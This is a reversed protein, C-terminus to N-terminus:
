AKGPGGGIVGEEDGVELLVGGNGFDGREELAGFFGDDASHAAETARVGDGEGEVDVVVVVNGGEGEMALCFGGIAADRM